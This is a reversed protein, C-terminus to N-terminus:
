FVGASQPLIPRSVQARVSATRPTDYLVGVEGFAEGDRLTDYVTTGDESVVEVVGRGIFFIENALDDKRIIYEHRLYYAPQLVRSVARIV